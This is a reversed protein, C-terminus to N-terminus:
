GRLVVRGHSWYFFRPSFVGFAILGFVSLAAKFPRLPHDIRETVVVAGDKARFHGKITVSDGVSLGETSGFVPVRNVSKSISYVNPNQIHEVTWLTFLLPMGDNKQSSSSVAMYGKSNADSVATYYLGLTVMLLFTVSMKLTRSSDSFM